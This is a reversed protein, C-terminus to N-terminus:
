VLLDVAGREREIAAVRAAVDPATIDFAAAFGGIEAALASVAGDDGLDNVGVDAGDAAFRRAIAAGIGQAAGTVLARRGLLPQDTM